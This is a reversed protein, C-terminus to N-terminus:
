HSSSIFVNFKATTVVCWGGEEREGASSYGYFTIVCWAKTLAPNNLFEVLCIRTCSRRQSDFDWCDTQIVVFIQSLCKQHM